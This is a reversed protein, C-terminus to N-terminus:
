PSVNFGQGKLWDIVENTAVKTYIGGIGCHGNPHLSRSTVGVLLFDLDHGEVALLVPGGSDGACSDQSRKTGFSSLVFESSPPACFTDPNGYLSNDIVLGGTGTRCNWARYSAAYRKEGSADTKCRVFRTGDQIPISCGMGFLVFGPRGRTWPISNQLLSPNAIKVKPINTFSGKVEILALDNQGGLVRLAFDDNCPSNGGFFRTKTVNIEHQRTLDKSLDHTVYVTKTPDDADSTSLRMDCVCHAATLVTKDDLLIGSCLFSRGMIAVVEEFQGKDVPSGDVVRVGAARIGLRISTYSQGRPETDLRVPEASIQDFSRITADVVAADPPQQLEEFRDMGRRVIAFYGPTAAGVKRVAFEHLTQTYRVWQAADARSDSITGIQGEAFHLPLFAFLMALFLLFSRHM